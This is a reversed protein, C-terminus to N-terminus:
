HSGTAATASRQRVATPSLGTATRVVRRMRAVSGFGARLAIREIPTQGLSPDSLLALAHELRAAAIHEAVGQDASEFLRHLSRMSIGLDRAITVPSLDPDTHRAAIHELVRTRNRERAPTPAGGPPSALVALLVSQALRGMSGRTASSVGGEDHRVIEALAAGAARLVPCDGAWVLAPVNRLADAFPPGEVDADLHVRSVDGASEYVYEDWGHLLAGGGPGVRVSGGAVSLRVEGELMILLRVARGPRGFNDGERLVAVATHRAHAVTLGGFRSLALTLRFRERDARTRATGGFAVLGPTGVLRMLTRADAPADTTTAPPHPSPRLGVEEESGFQHDTPPRHTPGADPM